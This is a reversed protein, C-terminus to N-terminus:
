RGDSAREGQEVEGVGNRMGGKVTALGEGLERANDKL